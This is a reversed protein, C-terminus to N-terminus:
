PTWKPSRKIKSITNTSDALYATVFNAKNHGTIQIIVVFNEVVVAVRRKSSVRKKKNDWGMFLEAQPDQLASKIWDIRLKREFSFVDKIGNRRSSEYFCHDFQSKKFRVLIGDFTKIPARCYINEYHQQYEDESTYNVFPPYTLNGVGM